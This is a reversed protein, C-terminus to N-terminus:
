FHFGTFKYYKKEVLIIGETQLRVETAHHSSIALSLDDADTGVGHAVRKIHHALREIVYIIILSRLDIHDQHFMQKRLPNSVLCDLTM